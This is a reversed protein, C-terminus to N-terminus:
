ASVTPTISYERTEKNWLEWCVCTVLTDFKKRTRKHYRGRQQLWWDELRDLPQPVDSDIGEGQFCQFWTERAYVCNVTINRRGASVFLM